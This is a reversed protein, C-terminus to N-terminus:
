ALCLLGFDSVNVGRELRVGTYLAVNWRSAASCCGKGLGSSYRMSTSMAGPIGMLLARFIM